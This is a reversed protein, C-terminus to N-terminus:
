APLAIHARHLALAVCIHPCQGMCAAEMGFTDIEFEVSAGQTRM